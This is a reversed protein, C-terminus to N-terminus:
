VFANDVYNTIPKFELHVLLFHIELILIDNESFREGVVKVEDDNDKKWKVFHIVFVKDSFAPQSLSSFYLFFSLICFLRLWMIFHM